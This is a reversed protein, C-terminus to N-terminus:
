FQAFVLFIPDLTVDKPTNVILLCMILTALRLLQRHQEGIKRWLRTAPSTEGDRDPIALAPGDRLMPGRGPPLLNKLTIVPNLNKAGHMPLRADLDTVLRIERDGTDCIHLPMCCSFRAQVGVVGANFWLGQDVLRRKGGMRRQVPPKILIIGVNPSWDDPRVPTGQLHREPSLTGNGNRCGPGTRSSPFSSRALIAGARLRRGQQGM